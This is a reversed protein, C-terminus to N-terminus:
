LSNREGIVLLGRRSIELLLERDSFSEILSVNDAGSIEEVRKLMALSRPKNALRKIWGREECESVLRAVHSKSKIGMEDALQQYTPAMGGGCSLHSQLVLLFRYQLATVSAPAGAERESQNIKPVMAM